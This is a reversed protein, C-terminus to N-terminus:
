LWNIIDLTFGHFTQPVHPAFSQAIQAALDTTNVVPAAPTFTDVPVDPLAILNDKPLASAVNASASRAFSTDANVDPLDAIPHYQPGESPATPSATPGIQKGNAKVWSAFLFSAVLLVGGM